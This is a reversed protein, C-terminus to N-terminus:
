THKANSLTDTPGGSMATFLLLSRMFPVIVFQPYHILKLDLGGAIATSFSNRRESHPRTYNRPAKSSDSNSVSNLISVMRMM